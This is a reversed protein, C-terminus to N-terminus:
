SLSVFWFPAWCDVILLKLGLRWELANKDRFAHGFFFAIRPTYRQSCISKVGQLCSFLLFLLCAFHLLIFCFLSFYISNTRILLLTVVAKVHLGEKRVEGWGGGGREFQCAFPSIEARQRTLVEFYRFIESLCQKAEKWARFNGTVQGM